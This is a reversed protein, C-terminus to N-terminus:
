IKKKSEVFTLPAVRGIFDADQDLDVLRDLNFVWRRSIRNYVTFSNVGYRKTAEFFPPKRVRPGIAIPPKFEQVM